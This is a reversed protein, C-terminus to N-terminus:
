ADKRVLDLILKAGDVLDKIHICEQHSHPNSAGIGINVATMHKNNFVNADSGGYYVLPEPTYGLKRLAKELRRVAPDQPLLKFGTFGNKFDIEIKGGMKEAVHHTKECLLQRLENLRAQEFSRIEGSVEIRDPVVNTAHGGKVSGINAVTDADIRGVPFDVLAQMAMSLANIGKEPSVAAHSARGLFAINFDLATPTTAVYAGPRRSCDLIYGEKAHLSGFDLARAGFMGKEEAVTFVIELPRHDFKSNKLLELTYLILAIGARNDAGLITSGDSSIIGDRIVPELGSTSAVTDLHAALLLPSSSTNKGPIRIILNGTNGGISQAASDEICEYNWSKVRAMVQDAIQREKFSVGDIRALQIFQEVIHESNIEM